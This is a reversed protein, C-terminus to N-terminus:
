LALGMRENLLYHHALILFISASWSYAKDCLSEGTLAHYCEAMSGRGVMECFRQAIERALQHEGLESLGTIILYTPPAWISGRWYGKPDFLPSRLNETALGNPTLFNGEQKLKAVLLDAIHKPLRKGLIIPMVLLLSQSDVIQQTSSTYGVFRDTHWFKTLLKELLTDARERWAQADQVNGLRLAVDALCEMQIVLFASLDPTEIPTGFHFLSSNDWGSDNGHNYQPVGDGDDDSFTFWWETWRCLPEYIEALHASTIWDSQSMIQYLTWGQIPPKAFDWRAFRDNISDPFAGEPNQMDIMLRFQDWALQPNGYSLAIANFCYDWSWVNNMWNKSMYMAPRTLLGQPSVISAWMIYSALERSQAYQEAVEPVHCRWHEYTDHVQQLCEEFNDSYDNVHWSHVFEEIAAEFTGTSISPVFDAIMFLTRDVSWPAQMHLDGHLSTLMHKMRLAFNTVQWRNEARQIVTDYIGTTASIRLGVREGKVRIVQTSPICIEVHGFQCELHLCTPTAAIDFPITRGNHLVELRCVIGMQGLDGHVTRLYLGERRQEHEDLYSFAWYTGYRSFPVHRLDLQM